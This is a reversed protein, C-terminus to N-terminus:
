DSLGWVLLNSSHCGDEFSFRFVALGCYPAGDNANVAIGGGAIGEFALLLGIVPDFIRLPADLETLIIEFCVVSGVGVGVEDIPEDEPCRVKDINCLYM